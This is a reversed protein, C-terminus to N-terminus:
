KCSWVFSFLMHAFRVSLVDHMLFHFTHSTYHLCTNIHTGCLSLSAITRDQLWSSTRELSISAIYVQRSPLMLGLSVTHTHTHTPPPPPSQILNSLVCGGPAGNKLHRHWNSARRRWDLLIGYSSVITSAAQILPTTAYQFTLLSLTLIVRIHYRYPCM